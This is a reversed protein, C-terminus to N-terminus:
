FWRDDSRASCGSRLLGHDHGRVEFREQEQSQGLLTSASSARVSHRGGALAIVMEVTMGARYPYAGPRTVDGDIFVSRYEAVQVVVNVDSALLKGLAATILAERDRATGGAAPIPGILPLSIDGAESVRHTGSIDSRGFVSVTVVDGHNLRYQWQARAAEWPTAASILLVFAIATFVLGRVLVPHRFLVCGSKEGCQASFGNELMNCEEVAHCRRFIGARAQGAGPLRFVADQVGRSGLAIRAMASIM